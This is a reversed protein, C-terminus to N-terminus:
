SSGPCTPASLGGKDNLKQMTSFFRKLQPANTYRIQIATMVARYNFTSPQARVWAKKVNRNDKVTGRAGQVKLLIGPIPAPAPKPLETPPLPTEQPELQSAATPPSDMLPLPAAPPAANANRDMLPLPAAPPAAIAKMAAKQCRPQWPAQDGPPVAAARHQPQLYTIPLERPVSGALLSMQQGQLM